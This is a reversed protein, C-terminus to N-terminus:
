MARISANLSRGIVGKRIRLPHRFAPTKVSTYATQHITYQHGSTSYMPPQVHATRMASLTVWTYGTTESSLRRKMKDGVSRHRHNPALSFANEFTAADEVVLVWASYGRRTDVVKQLRGIRNFIRVTNHVFQKVAAVNGRHNRTGPMLGMEEDFERAVNTLTDSDYRQDFMGGPVGWRQYPYPDDRPPNGPANHGILLLAPENSAPGGGFGLRRAIVYLFSKRHHPHANHSHPHHHAPLPTSPATSPVATPTMAAQPLLVDDTIRDIDEQAILQRCLPCKSSQGEHEVVGAICFEHFEHGCNRLKEVVLGGTPGPEQLPELCIACSDDIASTSPIPAGVSANTSSLHTFNPLMRDTFLAETVDYVFTDDRYQVKRSSHTKRVTHDDRIPEGSKNLRRRAGSGRGIELRGEM